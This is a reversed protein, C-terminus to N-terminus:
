WSILVNLHFTRNIREGFWHSFKFLINKPNFSCAMEKLTTLVGFFNLFPFGFSLNDIYLKLCILNAKVWLSKLIYGLFETLTFIFLIPSNPFFLIM